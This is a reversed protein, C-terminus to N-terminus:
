QLEVTRFIRAYDHGKTAVDTHITLSSHVHLNMERVQDVVIIIVTRWQQLKLVLSAMNSVALKYVDSPRAQSM